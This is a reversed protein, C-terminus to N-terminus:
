DNELVLHCIQKKREEELRRLLEEKKKEFEAEPNLEEEEKEEEVEKEEEEEKEELKPKPQFKLFNSKMQGVEPISFSSIAFGVQEWSTKKEAKHLQVSVVNVLLHINSQGVDVEKFLTQCFRHVKQTGKDRVEILLENSSLAYRCDKATDYGKVNFNLFVFEAKEIFIPSFEV